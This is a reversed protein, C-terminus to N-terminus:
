SIVRARKAGQLVGCFLTVLTLGGIMSWLCRSCPWSQSAGHSAYHLPPLEAEISILRILGAKPAGSSAAAEIANSDVGDHEARARLESVTLGALQPRLQIEREVERARASHFIGTMEGFSLLGDENRDIMAKVGDLWQVFSLM